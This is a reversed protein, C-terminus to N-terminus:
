VKENQLSSVIQQLFDRLSAIGGWPWSDTKLQHTNKDKVFIFSNWLESKITHNMQSKNYQENFYFFNLNGLKGLVDTSVTLYGMGQFGSSQRWAPQLGIIKLADMAVSDDTFLRIKPSGPLFQAIAIKRTKLKGSAVLLNIKKRSQKLFLQFKEEIKQEKDEKNLSKAVERFENLMQDLQTLNSNPKNQIYSFLLTPSIKSLLSFSNNNRISAGIILNPELQAIQEINPAARRGVDVTKDLKDDDISDFTKYSEIDATGIPRLGLSLVMETYRHELTIVRPNLIKILKVTGKDTNIVQSYTTSVFFLSFLVYRLYSLKALFKIIQM